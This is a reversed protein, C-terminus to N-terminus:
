EGCGWPAGCGLDFQNLLGSNKEKKISHELSQFSAIPQSFMTQKIQTELHELRNVAHSDLLGLVDKKAHICPFCEQSPNELFEFGTKHVLTQFETDNISWLPNWLTRGQYLENDIEFEQLLAYRRSDLRRKGTVILAEAGPDVEDLFALLPLAKLFSACWQFKPSPFQQRELVLKEFGQESRLQHVSVGNKKAYAIGAEVRQLWSTAAWGTDIYVFHISSLNNDILYQMVALSHNGFNGIIYHSM